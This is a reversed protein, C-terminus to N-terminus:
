EAVSTGVIGSGIPGLKRPDQGGVAGGGIATGREEVDDWAARTMVRSLENM